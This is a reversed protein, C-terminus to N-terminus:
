QMIFSTFYVNQIVDAGIKKNLQNKIETKLNDRNRVDLDAATKSSVISLISDKIIPMAADIKEQSKKDEKAVEVYVEFKLYRTSAVDNINTTFEGIAVLNGTDLNQKQTQNEPMLPAMMRNILFYTGAMAVMFFVLGIIIIKLDSKNTVEATKEETM